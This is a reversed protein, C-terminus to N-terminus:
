GRSQRLRALADIQDAASEFLRHLGTVHLICQTAMRVNCLILRHGREHLTKHLLVLSGIAPSRIIDVRGLDVILDVDDRHRIQGRLAELDERLRPEPSVCTSIVGQEITCRSM